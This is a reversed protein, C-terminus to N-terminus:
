HISGFAPIEPVASSRRTNTSVLIQGSSHTAASSAAPRILDKPVIGCVQRRDNTVLVATVDTQEGPVVIDLPDTETVTKIRSDMVSGAVLNRPNKGRIIIQECISRESVIGIPVRHAMSDVVVVLGHECKRILEYVQELPMDETCETVCKSMIEAISM